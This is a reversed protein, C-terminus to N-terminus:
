AGRAQSWKHLIVPLNEATIAADEPKTKWIGEALEMMEAYTLSRVLTAIEDLPKRTIAEKVPPMDVPELQATRPMPEGRDLREKLFNQGPEGRYDQKRSWSM